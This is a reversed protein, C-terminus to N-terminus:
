LVSIKTNAAFKPLIESKLKRWMPVDRFYETQEVVLHTLFHNAFENQQLKNLLDEANKVFLTEMAKILRRKCSTGAWSSIDVGTKQHLVVGIERIDKILLDM